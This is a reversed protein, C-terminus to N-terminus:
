GIRFYKKMAKVVRRRIDEKDYIGMEEYREQGWGDEVAQDYEAELATITEEMSMPPQEPIEGQSTFSGGPEGYKKKQIEWILNAGM